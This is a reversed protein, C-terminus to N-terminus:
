PPSVKYIALSIKQLVLHWLEPFAAGAFIEIVRSAEQYFEPDAM